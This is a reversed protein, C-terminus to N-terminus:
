RFSLFDKIINFVLLTVAVALGACALIGVFTLGTEPAYFIPVLAPVTEAIWTVMAEFVELVSDLVGM